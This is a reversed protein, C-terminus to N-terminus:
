TQVLLKATRYKGDIHVIYQYPPPKGGAHWHSFDGTSLEKVIEPYSHREKYYKSIDGRQKGHILYRKYMDDIIAEATDFCESEDSYCYTSQEPDVIMGAQELLKHVSM